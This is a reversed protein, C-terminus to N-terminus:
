RERFLNVTGYILFVSSRLLVRLFPVNKAHSFFDTGQNGNYAITVTNRKLTHTKPLSKM